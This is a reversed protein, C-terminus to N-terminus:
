PRYRGVAPDNNDLSRTRWNNPGWRDVLAQRDPPRQGVYGCSVESLEPLGPEAHARSLPSGLYTEGLQRYGDLWKEMQAKSPNQPGFTLHAATFGKVIIRPLTQFVGEDGFVRGWGHMPRGALHAPQPQGITKIVHSLTPWDYGVANISTWDETPILELPGGLFEDPHDFFYSHVMDAFPRSMHIDLLPIHLRQFGQWIGPQIPTSAGNNIINAILVSGRHADLAEVFKGFRATELFVIDDDVKMFLHDKFEPQSYHRYAANHENAGFQKADPENTPAPSDFGDTSGNFVTIQPGTITKVFERDSDTRAFNWVHYEVNPNEELIRRVLPLQLELNPQRGAFVFLIVRPTAPKKTM